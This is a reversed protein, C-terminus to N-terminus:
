LGDEFAGLDPSAGTFPETLIVGIDILRGAPVPRLFPWYPLSGDANRPATAVSENVSLVDSASAVPNTLVQWNNNTFLTGSRWSDASAGAFSLNNRVIHAATNTGHNLNFNRAKNAWGTNNDITQSLINNNQDYGNSENRFAVSRVTRHPAGIYNGGLKFGNGNGNFTPDGWYNTGNYFAWCQDIVLPSNAM